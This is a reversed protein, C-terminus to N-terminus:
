LLVSEGVARGLGAPLDCFGGYKNFLSRLSINGFAKMAGASAAVAANYAALNTGKDGHADTTVMVAQAFAAISVCMQTQTIRRGIM